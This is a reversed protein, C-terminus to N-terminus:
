EAYPTYPQGDEYFISYCVFVSGANSTLIKKINDYGVQAIFDEMPSKVKDEYKDDTLRNANIVFAKMRVM